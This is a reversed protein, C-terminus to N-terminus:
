APLYIGGELVLQQALSIGLLPESSNLSWFTAHIVGSKKYNGGFKVCFDGRQRQSRLPRCLTSFLFHWTLLRCLCCSYKLCLYKVIM